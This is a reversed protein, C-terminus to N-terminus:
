KSNLKDQFIQFHRDFQSHKHTPLKDFAFWQLGEMKEPDGIKAKKPDVLAGFIAAVWHTSVGKNDRMVSTTGAHQLELIEVCYEEKVERRVAEEFSEGFEVSGGGVDWKGIEDRCNKSRKHMLLNGKGDHCYFVVCVGIFDVGRKLDNPHQIIKRKKMYKTMGRFLPIWDFM